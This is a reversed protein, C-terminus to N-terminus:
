ALVNVSTAPIKSKAAATAICLKRLDPRKRLDPQLRVSRVFATTDAYWRTAYLVYHGGKPPGRSAISKM